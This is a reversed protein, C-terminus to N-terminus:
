RRHNKNYEELTYFNGSYHNSILHDTLYSENDWLLSDNWAYETRNRLVRELVDGYTTEGKTKPIKEEGVDGLIRYTEDVLSDYYKDINRNFQLNKKSTEPAYKPKNIMDRFAYELVMEFEEESLSRGKTKDYIYKDVDKKFEPNKVAKSMEKKLTESVDKLEADLNDSLKKIKNTSKIIEDFDNMKSSVVLTELQNIREKSVKKHYRRNISTRSVADINRKIKAAEGIEKGSGSYGKPYPQFRRIGWHMGLIGHHHLENKFRLYDPGLM